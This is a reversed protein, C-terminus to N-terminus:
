AHRADRRRSGLPAHPSRRASQAAHGEHATNDVAPEDFGRLGDVVAPQRLEAHHGGLAKRGSPDVVGDAIGFGTAMSLPRKSWTGHLNSADSLPGCM